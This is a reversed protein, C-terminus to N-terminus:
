ACPFPARGGTLWCFTNTSPADVAILRVSRGEELTIGGICAGSGQRTKAVILVKMLSDGGTRLCPTEGRFALRASIKMLIEACRQGGHEGRHICPLRATNQCGFRGPPPPPTPPRPVLHQVRVGLDHALRESLLSRHCVAPEREVCFLCSCACGLRPPSAFAAAYFGALRERHYSEIFAPSLIARSRKATHTAEDAAHQQSRTAASPALDLRHVYRIGLEALRAQLRQSNAFAYERGRVGRRARLDCFTDVGVAVLAGFFHEADWGDAGITVFEPM